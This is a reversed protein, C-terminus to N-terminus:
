QPLGQKTHLHITPFRFWIDKSQISSSSNKDKSTIVSNICGKLSWERSAFFYSYYEKRQFSMHRTEHHVSFLKGTPFHGAMCTCQGPHLTAKSPAANGLQAVM